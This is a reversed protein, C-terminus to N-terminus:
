IVTLLKAFLLSELSDSGITMLPIENPKGPPSFTNESSVNSRKTLPSVQMVSTLSSYLCRSNSLFMTRRILPLSPETFMSFAVWNLSIGCSAPILPANSKAASNPISGFATIAQSM